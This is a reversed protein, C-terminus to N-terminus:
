RFEGGYVLKTLYSQRTGGRAGLTNLCTLPEPRNRCLDVQHFTDFVCAGPLKQVARVLHVFVSPLRKVNISGAKRDNQKEGAINGPLHDARDDARYRSKCTRHLAEGGVFLIHFYGICTASILKTLHSRGNLHKLFVAIFNTTELTLKLLAFFARLLFLFIRDARHLVALGLASCRHCPIGLFRGFAGNVHLEDATSVFM